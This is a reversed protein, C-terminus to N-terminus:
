KGSFSFLSNYTGFVCLLLGGLMLVSNGLIKLAPIKINKRKAEDWLTKSYLIPPFIFAM